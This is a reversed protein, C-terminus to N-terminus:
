IQSLLLFSCLAPISLRTWMTCPVFWWARPMHSTSQPCTAGEVEGDSPKGQDTPNQCCAQGEMAPM